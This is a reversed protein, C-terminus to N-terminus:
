LTISLYIVVNSHKGSIGHQIYAQELGPAFNRLACQMIEM